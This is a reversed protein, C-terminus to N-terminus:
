ALVRIKRISFPYASSGSNAFKSKKPRVCNINVPENLLYSIFLGTNYLRKSQKANIPFDHDKCEFLEIQHDLVLSLDVQGLNYSRLVLDSLLLPVGKKHLHQSVLREFDAGKNKNKDRM